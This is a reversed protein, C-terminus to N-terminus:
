DEEDSYWDDEDFSVRGSDFSDNYYSAKIIWKGKEASYVVDDVHYKNKGKKKWTNIGVKPPQDIKDMNLPTSEGNEVYEHAEYQTGFAHKFKGNKHVEYRHYVKDYFIIHGDDYEYVKVVNDM